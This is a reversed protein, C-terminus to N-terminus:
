NSNEQVAAIIQTQCLGRKFRRLILADTEQASLVVATDKEKAEGISTFHFEGIRPYTGDCAPLALTDSRDNSVAWTDPDSVDAFSLRRSTWHLGSGSRTGTRLGMTSM